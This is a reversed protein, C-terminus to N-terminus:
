AGDGAAQGPAGGLGTAAGQGRLFLEDWLQLVLVATLRVGFSEQRAQHRTLWGAVADPRFYGKQRLMAPSLLERAFEPLDGRLFEQVSGGLGRKPRDVIEAPLIPRLGERLVHKERFRRMKFRAPIQAALEVLEHDLFPVRTEVGCAMALHDSRAGRM